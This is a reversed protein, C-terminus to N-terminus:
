KQQSKMISACLAFAALVVSKLNEKGNSWFLWWRQIVPIDLASRTLERMAGGIEHSEIRLPLAGCFEPM